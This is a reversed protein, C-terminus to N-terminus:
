RHTKILSRITSIFRIRCEADEHIRKRLAFSIELQVGKGTCGRNCINTAVEGRYGQKAERVIFGQHQLAVRLEHGFKTDLGGIELFEDVSGKKGHITLVTGAEQLALLLTPEDFQHSTIHLKPNDGKIGEFSYWAFDEDAIWKAIQSTYLEIKGGHPAIVLVQHWNPSVNIRYDQGEQEHLQLECFNSYNESTMNRTDLLTNTPVVNTARPNIPDLVSAVDSVMLDIGVPQRTLLQDIETRMAEVTYYTSSPEFPGGRDRRGQTIYGKDILPQLIEQAKEVELGLRDMLSYVNQRHQSTRIVHLVNLWTEEESEQEGVPFIQQGERFIMLAGPRMDQWRESTLPATAVIIGVEGNGKTNQFNVEMDEDMLRVCHDYPPKRETYCLGKYGTKDRYCFLYEGDTFLCNFHGYQNIRRMTNELEIFSSDNWGTYTEEMTNLLYCFAYESDTSGVPKFRGLQLNDQYNSLAGNHAFAYERGQFERVFPHTNDYCVESTAYRVHSIFSNSRLRGYNKVFEVLESSRAQLPEKFVQVAKSGEPYLAIGWGHLNPNGRNSFGRFSFGCSVPRNFNMGLLECM